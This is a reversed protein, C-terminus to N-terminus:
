GVLRALLSSLEAVDVPKTLYGKIIGNLHKDSLEPGNRDYGSMIAIKADPDFELIRDACSIGNKAPMNVDMLVALPQATKYSDLVDEGLEAMVPTYGLCELLDRMATQIEHEVDVVLVPEGKGRVIETPCATEAINGGEILRFRVIFTTGKGPTSEVLTEGDHSKVIGYTTSLGLGTGKGVEKTTFFPDFCKKRTELDMGEGSDTVRVVALNEEQRADIELVGGEPMADRCNTFLNMFVQSLGSHDGMIPLSQYLNLHIDIKQNFSKKIIQYTEAIVAVLDVRQFEKTTEKRSFQMLRNVLRAGRKVSTDIRNVVELLEQEDPYNEQIVQSNVLIGTLTNRFNHAVGSAITGIAEMKQAHQLQMELRKRETVDTILVISISAERNVPLYKITVQRGQLDVPHKEGVESLRRGASNMLEELRMRVNEDFLDPPYATLIKELPVQFMSVATSNAYVIKGEIVELIGESMSELITKLHRNRSLLERTMQRPSVTDLGMIPGPRSKSWPKSSAEVASFAHQAVMAFPGKAIYADAGIEEYSNEIEAVVASIVVLYCDSLHKMTRIIRCLKDGDLKPLILDLFIVDPTFDTLMELASIGDEVTQVEHGADELQRTFYKLFVRDDDILLIKKKM